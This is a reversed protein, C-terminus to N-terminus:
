QDAGGLQVADVGIGPQFIGQFANGDPRIMPDVIKQGDLAPFGALDGSVGGSWVLPLQKWFRHPFVPANRILRDVEVQIAEADAEPLHKLLGELPAAARPQQPNSAGSHM